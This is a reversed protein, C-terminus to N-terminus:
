FARGIRVYARWGDSVRSGRDDGRAAGATLTVPLGYGLVVDASLEVGADTAWASAGRSRTWTQGADAFLSAHVTHLFIPWTSIGREPRWLPLRYDANALLVRSGAFSAAAFGRLLGFADSSFSAPGPAASAGGLQFVRMAALDGSAGGIGARVAVVHHRAVGPLYARADGTWVIANADAGLGRRVVELTAGASLGGEASISYGYSHATTAAFSGRMASRNRTGVAGAPDIDAVDRIFSVGVTRSRRVSRAPVLVGAELSRERLASPIAVGSEDAAVGGFSTSTSVSVWPQWTWRTYAYSLSADPTRVRPSGAPQATVWAIAAAYAHYNLVDSGTVLGGVRWAGDSSDITPTWFTPAITRWPSYSSARQLSREIAASDRDDPAADSSPVSTLAQGTPDYPARFLDFGQATYGVYVLSRGDPTVDPWTAGGTTHTLARATDDALDIEVLNFVAEGAAAAAVIAQGDPRWTPTVYRTGPVGAVVRVGKTAVDVVVIESAHGRRHREAAIQRGDPSFRPANFVGHDPDALLTIDHEGIPSHDHVAVVVLDRHGPSSRVAVLSRGDPSVDPDALRLDQSLRQVARTQRDFAYIDSYLGANRRREQQDFYLTSTSVGTTRGLYRSTLERPPASGDLPVVSLSPFGDPTQVSYVVSPPCIGCAEPMVRPASVIFGHHTLRLAGDATTTAGGAQAPPAAFATALSAQYERWLAGVSSGFVGSFARPWLYPLTGATARMLQGIRDPGFRQALYESFGLGYAYAANGAPWATLGGNIRDFPELRGARAAEDIVARFDGAYERGDGTVTSEELVAPGEIQWTPLLTNPFALPVRGFMARVASAWGRSQALHVIHTFEHTFVLRMWDDTSGIFDTGSPRAATVMVTNRPTPTAWGNADETQDVLVVETWVPPRLGLSAGVTTWTSEAISALATAAQAEGQHFHIAFHTTYITRFRYAPDYAQAAVTAPAIAAVLWLAIATVLPASLRPRLTRPTVTV